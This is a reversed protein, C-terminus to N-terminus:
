YTSVVNGVMRIWEVRGLDLISLEAATTHHVANEM